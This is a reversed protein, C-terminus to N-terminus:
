WRLFVVQYFKIECKIVCLHFYGLKCEINWCLCVFHQIVEGKNKWNQIVM